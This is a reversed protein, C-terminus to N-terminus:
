SETGALVPTRTLALADVHGALDSLRPHRYVDKVAVALGREKKLRAVVRLALLSHGGLAFFDDSASLGERGLVESWVGAIFQESDSLPESAAGPSAAPEQAQPLAALDLKGNLTLPLQELTVFDTPVMFDPLSGAAHARLQDASPAAEARPVCYAVLRNGSEGEGRVLVVANEVEPHASLVSEIEGLEVRYGRFKVQRDSRGVFELVGSAARRVVDGTRYMRSGPAGFPDAVFREATLGPRNVYGRALRPGAIYLEGETGDPVERLEGDLVRVRNEPLARGIHPADGSMWAATADVTCETPGYVNVAELVGDQRAQSLERWTRASVPEGGMFLRLLRGDSRPRLLTARLLEWHSPTLDLDTVAHRDLLAELREPDKRDDEDLVVVTDGRCVRVWQQVSADFAVSANWAVVQPQTGYAGFEELAAVLSAVGGRTTEVAKPLGTSGSTYITYASDLPSLPLDPLAVGASGPADGAPGAADAPERAHAPERTDAPDVFEVGAPRFASDGGTILVRIGADEAMFALRDHPYRPDLPVYAAGARWVALLAVVLRSGRPLCVGIRDGRAVGHALLARAL